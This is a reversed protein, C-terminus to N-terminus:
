HPRQAVALDVHDSNWPLDFPVVPAIATLMTVTALMQPIACSVAAEKTASAANAPQVM